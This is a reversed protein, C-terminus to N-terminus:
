ATMHLRELREAAHWDIGHQLELPADAMVAENRDAAVIVAHGVPGAPHDLDLLQGVQDADQIQAVDDGLMRHEFPALLIADIAAM